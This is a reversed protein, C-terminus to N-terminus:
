PTGKAKELLERRYAAIAEAYDSPHIAIGFLKGCKSCVYLDIDVYDLYDVKACGKEWHGEAADLYDAHGCHACWVKQEEEDVDTM